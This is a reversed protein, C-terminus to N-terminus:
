KALIKRQNTKKKTTKGQFNDKLFNLKWEREKTIKQHKIIVNNITRCNQEKQLFNILLEKQKISKQLFEQNQDYKHSNKDLEEQKKQNKYVWSQLNEIYKNVFINRNRKGLDLKILELMKKGRQLERSLQNIKDRKVILSDIIKQAKPLNKLIFITQKVDAENYNKVMEKILLIDDYNLKDIQKTENNYYAFLIYGLYAAIKGKKDTQSSLKLNIKDLELFHDVDQYGLKLAVNDLSIHNDDISNTQIKLYKSTIKNELHANWGLFQITQNSITLNPGVFDYIAQELTKTLNDSYIKVDFNSLDIFYTKFITKDKNIVKGLTFCYVIEDKINKYKPIKHLFNPTIAEFDVFLIQQTLKKSM